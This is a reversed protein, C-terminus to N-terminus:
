DCTIVEKINSMTKVDIGNVKKLDYISKYPRGNIILTAKEKGIGPLTKLEEYSATNINIKPPESNINNVTVANNQQPQTQKVIKADVFCYTAISSLTCLIVVILIFNIQIRKEANM